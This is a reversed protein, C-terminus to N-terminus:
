KWVTPAFAGDALNAPLGDEPSIVRGGKEWTTGDQSTAYAIRKRNSDDGAYWMKWTTGDKIVSPDQAAFSDASGARGHDIVPTPSTNDPFKTWTIGDDSTAQFIAGFTDDKGSYYMTYHPSSGADYVVEPAFVGRADRSSASPTL